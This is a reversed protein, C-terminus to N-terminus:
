PLLPRRSATEAHHIAQLFRSSRKLVRANRRCPFERLWRSTAIPVLLQHQWAAHPFSPCSRSHHALFLRCRLDFFACFILISFVHDRDEVKGEEVQIQDTREVEVLSNGMNAVVVQIHGAGLIEVEAQVGVVNAVVVQSQAEVVLIDGVLPPRCHHSGGLIDHFVEPVGAELIDGVELVEVSAPHAVQRIGQAAEVESTLTRPLVELRQEKRRPFMPPQGDLLPAHLISVDLHHDVLEPNCSRHAEM